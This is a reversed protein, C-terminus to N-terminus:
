GQAEAKGKEENNDRGAGSREQGLERAFRWSGERGDGESAGQGQASREESRGAAAGGRESSSSSSAGSSAGAAPNREQAVAGAISLSLAAIAVGTLLQNRM